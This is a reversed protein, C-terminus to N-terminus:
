DDDNDSGNGHGSNNGQGGDDNHESEHEDEASEHEGSGNGSGSASGSNNSPASHNVVWDYVTGSSRDVYGTVTSGDTRQIRVAWAHYGGHSVKSISVVRGGSASVAAAQAQRSTVSSGADGSKDNTAASPQKPKPKPKSTAAPASSTSKTADGAETSPLAPLEIPEASPLLSTPSPSLTAPPTAAGTTAVVSMQSRDADSSSTANVVAISAVTAAVFVGTTAIVTAILNSRQM